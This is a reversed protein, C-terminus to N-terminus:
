CEKREIDKQLDHPFVMNNQPNCLEALLHIRLCPIQSYRPGIEIILPAFHPVTSGLLHSPPSWENKGDETNKNKHLTTPFFFNMM